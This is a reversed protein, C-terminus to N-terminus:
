PCMPRSTSRRSTSRPRASSCSASPPCTPTSCTTSTCGRCCCRLRIIIQLLHISKRKEKRWDGRGRAPHRGHDVAGGQVADHGQVRLLDPQQGAAPRAGAPPLASGAGDQMEPVIVFYCATNRCHFCIAFNNQLINGIEKIHTCFSSM